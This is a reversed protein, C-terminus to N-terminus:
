IYVGGLDCMRHESKVEEKNDVRKCKRSYDASTTYGNIRKVYILCDPVLSGDKVVGTVCGYDDVIPYCGTWNFYERASTIPLFRVFNDFDTRSFDAPCKGKRDDFMAKWITYLHGVDEEVM